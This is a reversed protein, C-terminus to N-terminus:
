LVEGFDERLEPEPLDIEEFQRGLNNRREEFIGSTCRRVVEPFEAFLDIRRPSYGELKRNPFVIQGFAPFFKEKRERGHILIGYVFGDRAPTVPRFSPDLYQQNDPEAYALRAYSSRVLEDPSRATAQTMICDGATIVTHYWFGSEDSSCSSTISAHRVANERLRGEIMGRRFFPLVNVAETREFRDSCFEASSLYDEFLGTLCDRLYASPMDRRFIDYRGM